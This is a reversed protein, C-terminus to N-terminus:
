GWISVQPCSLFWRALFLRLKRLSYLQLESSEITGPAVRVTITGLQLVVSRQASISVRIVLAADRRWDSARHSNVSYTVCTCQSVYGSGITMAYRM